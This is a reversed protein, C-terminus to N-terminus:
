FSPKFSTAYQKKNHSQRELYGHNKFYICIYLIFIEAKLFFPRTIAIPIRLAPTTCSTEPKLMPQFGAVQGPGKRHGQSGAPVSLSTVTCKSLHAPQQWWSELKLTKKRNLAPLALTLSSPAKVSLACAFHGGRPFAQKCSASKPGRPINLKINAATLLSYAM